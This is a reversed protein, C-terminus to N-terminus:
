SGSDLIPTMAIATGPSLLKITTSAKWPTGPNPSPFSWVKVQGSLEDAVFSPFHSLM